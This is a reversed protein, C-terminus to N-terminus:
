SSNELSSSYGSKVAGATAASSGRGRDRDMTEATASKRREAKSANNSKNSLPRSVRRRREPLNKEMNHIEDNQIQRADAEDDLDEGDEDGSSLDVGDPYDDSQHPNARLSSSEDSSMEEDVVEEESTSLDDPFTSSETSTTQFFMAPPPLPLPDLRKIRGSVYKCEIVPINPQSKLSRKMIRELSTKPDAFRASPEISAGEYTPRMTSVIVSFHDEPMVGGLGCPELPPISRKQDKEVSWPFDWTDEDMPDGESSSQKSLSEMGANGNDSSPTSFVSKESLPRQGIRSDSEPSSGNPQSTGSPVDYSRQDQGSSQMYTLPSVDGPDGSLDTCFPAGSYYIIAGDRRRKRRNAQASGSRGWCSDDINSEEAAPDLSSSTDDSSRQTDLSEQHAFMPKYHFSDSHVSTQAELKSTNKSSSGSQFEDGTSHGTKLRKRQDHKNSADTDETDPSKQSHDTSSDSSFRTGESGGRWRIKRGDPSLQFKASMDAVASRVFAPTVNIMHLQALSCLLNLYVWGDADPQVDQMKYSGSLLEPPVLGLHRIYDMNESPVQVRDPDLDTPRTARQEPPPPMPPSPNTGSGSSHGPASDAGDGNSNSTSGNGGSRSKKSSHVALQDRPLIRAERSAEVGTVLTPPQHLTANNQQTRDDTVVGAPGSTDHPSMVRARRSARGGMKGTFLHELRRVVLRKRERETLAIPRPYLGEPIDRLYSEIKEESSKSRSSISPRGLSTGSSNAGTSMSAYASDTPRANSGSSSSAHKFASGGGSYLHDRTNHRSSKKRQSSSADPSGDLSATFDRLTAELERRKTKPLGHIKIEFLKEKRLMDPGKQKYRKLEEKLKQIEVTLDDIVSRYDDASSSHAAPLHPRLHQEFPYSKEEENSSDSEKQFFPPDIEMLTNDFTATPNENSQDFWKKPDSQKTENSDGSSNRRPSSLDSEPKTPTAGSAARLSADRALKHHRLTVSEGPPARRPLPHGTPSLPSPPSGTTNDKNDPM